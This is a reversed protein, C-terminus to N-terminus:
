KGQALEQHIVNFKDKHGVDNLVLSNFHFSALLNTIIFYRLFVNM